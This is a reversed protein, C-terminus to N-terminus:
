VNLVNLDNFSGKVCIVAEVRALNALGASDAAEVM